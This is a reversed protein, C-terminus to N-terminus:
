RREAAALEQVRPRVGPSRSRREPPLRGSLRQGLTGKGLDQWIDVRLGVSSEGGFHRFEVGLVWTEKRFGRIMLSPVFSGGTGEDPIYGTELKLLPRLKMGSSQGLAIDLKWLPEPNGLRRDYSADVAWWANGWRNTFGQGAGYGVKYFGWWDPGWHHGGLGVEIAQRIAADKRGLPLRAFILAHGTVTPTENVDVGMTWWDTLGYELYIKQENNPVIRSPRLTAGFSLFGAGKDRLWAGALVPTGMALWVLMGLVLCSPGRVM